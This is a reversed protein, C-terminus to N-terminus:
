PECPSRNLYELGGGYPDNLIKVGPVNYLALLVFRRRFNFFVNFFSWANPSV